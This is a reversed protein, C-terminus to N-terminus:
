HVVGEHDAQPGSARCAPESAEGLDFADIDRLELRHDQADRAVAARDVLLDEIVGLHM